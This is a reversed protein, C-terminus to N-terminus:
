GLTLPVWGLGGDEDNNILVAEGDANRDDEYYRNRIESRPIRRDRGARFSM